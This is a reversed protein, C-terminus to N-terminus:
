LTLQDSFIYAQGDIMFRTENGEVENVKAPTPLGQQDVDIGGTTHKNGQYSAFDLNGNLAGGIGYKRIIAGGCGYSSGAARRNRDEVTSDFKGLYPAMKENWAVVAAQNARVDARYKAAEQAGGVMAMQHSTFASVDDPIPQKQYTGEPRTMPINVATSEQAMGRAQLPPDTMMGGMAYGYPNDTEQIASFQANRSDKIMKREDIKNGIGTLIPTLVAGLGPLALNSAAGITSGITGGLGFMQPNDTSLKAVMARLYESDRKSSADPRKKVNVNKRSM